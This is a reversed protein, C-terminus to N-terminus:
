LRTTLSALGAVGAHVPLEESDINFAMATGTEESM